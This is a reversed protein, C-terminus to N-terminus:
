RKRAADAGAQAWAAKVAVLATTYREGTQKMRARVAKKLKSNGARPM